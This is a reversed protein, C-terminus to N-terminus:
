TDELSTQMAIMRAAALCCSSLMQEVEGFVNLQGQTVAAGWWSNKKFFKCHFYAGSGGLDKYRLLILLNTLVNKQKNKTKTKKINVWKNLSMVFISFLYSM